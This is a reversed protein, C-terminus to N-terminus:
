RIRDARVWKWGMARYANRVTDGTVVEGLEEYAEMAVRAQSWTPNEDKLRKFVGAREETRATPGGQRKGAGEETSMTTDDVRQCFGDFIPLVLNAFMEHILTVEVRTQSGQKIPSLLLVGVLEDETKFLVGVPEDKIKHETTLLALIRYRRRNRQLSMEELRLFAKAEVARGGSANFHDFHWQTEWIMDDVSETYRYEVM